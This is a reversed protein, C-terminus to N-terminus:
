VGVDEAIDDLGLAVLKSKPILGEPTWGRAEYYSQLMIRLDDPKVYAGKSGGAPLPDELWRPPLWDDEKKWGERINFAKKLNWSRESVAKLEDATLPIGTAYTYLQPIETWIDKFCNRIFKCLMVIDFVGAFEEAKKAIAGRDKGAKLRDVEGKIDAEYALSRNHCPGRTGVACGLAFTQVGRADYGCAELGKVHMAFHESGKGVKAAARKVGEALLDGIGERAAIMKVLAVVAQHNGWTPELGGFDEKTLIGRQFCEMAWSITVGTSLTDMGLGDCREIAAIVAAMQSVGCNPGVAYLSEYDVSTRAGAYDGEKVHVIQECAIPCGACAIAKETYHEHMYEGSVLEAGEFEGEQYNRTPLIGLRNMNLVNSPTGLVRYKETKGTQAVESLHQSMECLKDPDAVTVPKTGRIAVAKVLKSGLVAGLGTRGAQRGRDNTLNAFRVLKEGAPGVTTVRVREDGVKARIAEETPFTEMGWLDAADHFTVSDDDIFIWIPKDAKGKIVIGDYGARKISSSFYSSALCDGIFGTLPSKAAVAHKGGVPVMTGAFASVAFCLANDPGLPDAGKPTNDYVLRTALSVGGIYKKLFDENVQQVHTKRTSVDIHLIRGSYSYM